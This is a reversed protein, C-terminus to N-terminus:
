AARGLAERLLTRLFEVEDRERVLQQTLEAVRQQLLPEDPTTTPHDAGECPDLLGASVLDAVPIMWAGDVEEAHPFHGDAQRRRITNKSVHCLHAAESRTVTRTTSM